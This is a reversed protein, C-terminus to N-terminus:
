HCQKELDTHRTELSNLQKLKTLPQDHLVARMPLKSCPTGGGGVDVELLSHTQATINMHVNHHFIIVVLGHQTTLLSVCVRVCVCACV